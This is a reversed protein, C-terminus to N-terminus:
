PASSRDEARRAALRAILDTAVNWALLAGYAAILGWFVPPYGRSPGTVLWVGFVVQLGAVALYQWARARERYPRSVAARRRGPQLRIGRHAWLAAMAFATCASVENGVSM